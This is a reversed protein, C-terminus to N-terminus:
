AVGPVALVQDPCGCPGSFVSQLCPVQIRFPLALGQVFLKEETTQTRM